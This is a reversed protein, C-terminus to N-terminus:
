VAGTSANGDPSGSHGARNGGTRNFANSARNNIKNKIDKLNEMAIPKCKQRANLYRRLLIPYYRSGRDM